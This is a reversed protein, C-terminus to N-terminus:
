VEDAPHRGFNGPDEEWIGLGPHKEIKGAPVKLRERYDCFLDGGLTGLNHVRAETKEVPTVIRMGSVELSTEAHEGQQTTKRLKDSSLETSNEKGM